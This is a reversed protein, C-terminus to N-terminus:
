PSAIAAGVAQYRDAGLTEMMIDWPTVSQASLVSRLISPSFGSVLATRDTNSQVPFNNDGGFGGERHAVNWWIVAPLEYSHWAFMRKAMDFMTEQANHQSPNFGMDSIVLLYKPMDAV